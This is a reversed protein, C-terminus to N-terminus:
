HFLLHNSGGGGGSDFGPEASGARFGRGNDAGNEVGYVERKFVDSVGGCAEGDVFDIGAGVAKGGDAEM